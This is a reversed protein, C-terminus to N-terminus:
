YRTQAKPFREKFRNYTTCYTHGDVQAKELSRTKMMIAYHALFASGKVAEKKGKWKLLFNQPIHFFLDRDRWRSPIVSAKMSGQESTIEVLPSEYKPMWIAGFTIVEINEPLGCNLTYVVMKRNPFASEMSRAGYSIYEDLSPQPMLDILAQLSEKDDLFTKPKDNPM